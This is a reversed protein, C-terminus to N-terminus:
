AAFENAGDESAGLGDVYARLDGARIRRCGDIRVSHLQGGALLEYVKSRSISLAEAAELPTLLLKDM